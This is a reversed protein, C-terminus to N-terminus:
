KYKYSFCSRRKKNGDQDITYLIESEKTLLYDYLTGHIKLTIISQGLISSQIQEIDQYRVKVFNRKKPNEQIIYQQFNM